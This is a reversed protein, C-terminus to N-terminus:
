KRISQAIARSQQKQNAISLRNSYHRRIKNPNQNTMPVPSTHPIITNNNKEITSTNLTTHSIPNITSKINASHKLFAKSNYNQISLKGIRSNRLFYLITLRLM